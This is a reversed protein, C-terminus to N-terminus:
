RAVFAKHWERFAPFSSASVARMKPVELSSPVPMGAIQQQVPKYTRVQIPPSEGLTRQSSYPAKLSM